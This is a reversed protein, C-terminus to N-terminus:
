VRRFLFIEENIQRHWKTYPRHLDCAVELDRALELLIRIANFRFIAM